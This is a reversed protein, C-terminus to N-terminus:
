RATVVTETREACSREQEEELLVCESRCSSGSDPCAAVQRTAAVLRTRLLQLNALRLDVEHLRQQLMPMLTERVRTCSDDDVVQLLEVIEPLALELQKAADVFALRELVREDYDRYGNPGRQCDVLGLTEYYRLATATLGSRAAAESILM